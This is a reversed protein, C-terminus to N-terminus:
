VLHLQQSLREPVKEDILCMQCTQDEVVQGPQFWESEIAAKLALQVTNGVGDVDTAEGEGVPGLGTLADEHGDSDGDDGSGIRFRTAQKRHRLSLSFHTHAIPSTAQM